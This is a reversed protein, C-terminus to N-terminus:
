ITYMGKQSIVVALDTGIFYIQTILIVRFSSLTRLMPMYSIVADPM